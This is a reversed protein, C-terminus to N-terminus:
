NLHDSIRGPSTDKIKAAQEKLRSVDANGKLRSDDAVICQGEKAQLFERVDSLSAAASASNSRIAKQFEVAGMTERAQNARPEFYKREARAEECQKASDSSGEFTWKSLPADTDLGWMSVAANKFVWPPVMLYWGVLVLAAAHRLTMREM